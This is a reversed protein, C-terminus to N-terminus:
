AEHAHWFERENFLRWGEEYDKWDDPTMAPEVICSPDIEAAVKKKPLTNM